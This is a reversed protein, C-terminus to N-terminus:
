CCPPPLSPRDSSYFRWIGPPSWCVAVPPSGLCIPGEAPLPSTAPICPIPTLHSFGRFPSVSANEHATNTLRPLCQINSKTSTQIHPQVHRCRLCPLPQPHSPCCAGPCMHMSAGAGFALCKFCLGVRPPGAAPGPQPQYRSCTENFLWTVASCAGGGAQMSAAGSMPVPAEQFSILCSCAEVRRPNSPRSPPVSVSVACLPPVSRARQTLLAAKASWHTLGLEPM